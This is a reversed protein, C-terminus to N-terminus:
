RRNLHKMYISVEGYLDIRFLNSMFVLAHQVWGLKLCDGSISTEGYVDIRFLNSM